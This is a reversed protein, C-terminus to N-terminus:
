GFLGIPDFIKKLVDKPKSLDPPTLLNEIPKLPNQAFSELGNMPNPLGGGGSDGGGFMNFPNPLGGGGGSGGGFLDSPNPPTPLGMGSLMDFPNPLGGGSGSSGGGFLDSPNPPTPLGMRSLMDMPNPINFNLAAGTQADTASFNLSPNQLNIPGFRQLPGYPESSENGTNRMQSYTDSSTRRYQDDHEAQPGCANDDSDSSYQDDQQLREVGKRTLGQRHAVEKIGKNMAKIAGETDGNRLLREAKEINSSADGENVMGKEIMKKAVTDGNETDNLSSLGSDIKGGADNLRGSAKRLDKMAGSIDGDTAAQIADELNHRVVGDGHIGKQLDKIGGGSSDNQDYIPKATSLESNLQSDSKNKDPTAKNTFIHCYANVDKPNYADTAAAALSHDNAVNETGRLNEYTM